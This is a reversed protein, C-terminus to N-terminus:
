LVIDWDVRCPALRRRLARSWARVLLLSCRQTVRALIDSLALEERSALEECISRLVSAGGPDLGGTAEWVLPEYAVGVERCLAETRAHSRKREAYSQAAHLATRSSHQLQAPTFPSVVGIDLAIQPLAPSSSQRITPTTQLLIDAPRRGGQPALLGAEELKPRLGAGRFVQFLFDRIANHRQTTDGGCTCALAHHGRLDLPHYCLTCQQGEPVVSMGLRLRIADCTEADSLMSSTNPNPIAQLWGDAGQAGACRLVACGATYAQAMLADRTRLQLATSLEAQKLPATSDGLRTGLEAPLQPALQASAEAFGELPGVDDPVLEDALSQSSRCSAAFAAAALGVASGLGLGGMGSPLQAQKWQEDSLEQGVLRGLHERLLLDYGELLPSIMDPPCVRMLYQVRSSTLCSRLLYLRAHAHQLSALAELTAQLDQLKKDCFSQLFDQSGMVPAQLAIVNPSMEISVGLAQFGRLDGTFGAGSPVVLRCKGLDFNLGFKGALAVEAQFLALVDAWNGGCYSDDSFEAIFTPKANSQALAEQLM